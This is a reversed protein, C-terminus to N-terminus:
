SRTFNAIDSNLDHAGGAMARAWTIRLVFLLGKKPTRNFNETYGIVSVTGINSSLQGASEIYGAVSAASTDLLSTGELIGSVAGGVGNWTLNGIYTGGPGATVDLTGNAGTAVALGHYSGTFDFSTM